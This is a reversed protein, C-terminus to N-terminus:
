VSQHKSGLSGKTFEELAVGSMDTNPAVCQKWLSRVPGVKGLNPDAQANATPVDM